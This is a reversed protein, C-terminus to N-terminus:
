ISPIEEIPDLPLLKYHFLVKAKPYNRKFNKVIREMVMMGNEYTLTPLMLVYQSSGMRSVVDGKRLSNTIIQLLNAMHNSLLGASLPENNYDTVTILGIFISQGTRQSVRAELRYIDKFFEYECVFAGNIKDRERLEDKIVNLDLEMAKETKVIDRYLKKLESSPNIGLKNYFLNTAYEYQKLASKSDGSNVMAQILKLHIKEECEDITLAKKCVAIIEAFMEHREYLDAVYNVLNLYMTRYYTNLPMVWTELALKPLFDGRYLLLAKQAYEMKDTDSLTDDNKIKKCCEEFEVYDITCPIDTNWCYTNNKLVFLEKYFPIGNQGLVTRLRYLLTKLANYPNRCNEDPWLAEMLDSQTKVKDKFVILYELLGWMKKSNNIEESIIIENYQLEFSGLMRINLKINELPLKATGM